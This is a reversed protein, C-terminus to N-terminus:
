MYHATYSHTFRVVAAHKAAKKSKLHVCQKLCAVLEDAYKTLVNGDVM